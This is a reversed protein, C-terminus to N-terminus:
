RILNPYRQKMAAMIKQKDGNFQVMFNKLVDEFEQASPMGETRRVPGGGYMKQGGPAQEGNIGSYIEQTARIRNEADKKVWDYKEVGEPKVLMGEWASDAKDYASSVDTMKIKNEPAKNRDKLIYEGKKVLIGMMDKAKIAWDKRQQPNLQQWSEYPVGQFMKEWLAPLIHQSNKDAYDWPDTYKSPDSDRDVSAQSRGPIVPMPRYPTGTNPDIRPQLNPDSERVLYADGQPGTDFQGTQGQINTFMPTKKTARAWELYAKLTSSPKGPIAPSSQSPPVASQVPSPGPQPPQWSESPPQTTQGPPTYRSGDPAFPPYPPPTEPGPAVPSMGKFPNKPPYLDPM